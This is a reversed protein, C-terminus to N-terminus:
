NLLTQNLNDLAIENISDKIYNAELAFGVAEAGSIKFNNIGIVEGEKNILPGGSNGPNLPADTQIYAELGNTGVRHIGSVIGQSVSFQLGLPNGIAIVKEGVQIENSDALNLKEFNGPIKLLAVDLIGDYGIFEADITKQESTIAKINSSLEGLSNALVHANTVIYGEELIIFGTGQGADTRITVVSKIANEIIGSFDEGASAKLLTIEQQISEQTKKVSTQTQMINETLINLQSQTDAQLNTIKQNLSNYNLNQKVFIMYGLVSVVIMFIIVVSSFGGIMFKHHRELAM